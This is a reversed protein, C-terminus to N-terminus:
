FRKIMYRKMNPEERGDKFANVYDPYTYSGASVVDIYSLSLEDNRSLVDMQTEVEQPLKHLQYKNTMGGGSYVGWNFGGEALYWSSFVYSIDDSGSITIDFNEFNDTVLGIKSDLLVFESPIEGRSNQYYSIEDGIASFSTRFDSFGEPTHITFTASRPSFSRNSILYPYRINDMHGHVTNRFDFNSLGSDEFRIQHLNEMNVGKDFDLVVHEDPKRTIIQYKPISVGTHVTVLNLPFEESASFASIEGPAVSGQFLTKYVQGPLAVFIESYFDPLNKYELTAFTSPNRFGDIVKPAEFKATQGLELDLYSTADVFGQSSVMFITLAVKDGKFNTNSITEKSGNFLEGQALNSAGLTI